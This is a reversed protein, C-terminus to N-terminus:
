PLVALGLLVLVTPQGSKAPGGKGAWVDVPPMAMLAQAELSL